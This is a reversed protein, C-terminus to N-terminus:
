CGVANDRCARLARGSWQIYPASGKPGSETPPVAGVSECPVILKRPGRVVAASESEYRVSFGPGRMTVGPMLLSPGLKSLLPALAEHPGRNCM